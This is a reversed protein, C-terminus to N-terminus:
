KQNKCPQVLKMVYQNFTWKQEGCKSLGIGLPMHKMLKGLPSPPSPPTMYDSSWGRAVTGAVQLKMRNYKCNQDSAVFKKHSVGLYIGVWM